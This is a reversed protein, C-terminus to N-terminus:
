PADHLAQDIDARVGAYQARVLHIWALEGPSRSARAAEVASDLTDHGEKVRGLALLASGLVRLLGARAESSCPVRLVQEFCRVAGHLDGRMLAIDAAEIAVDTGTGMAIGVDARALAPADNIGDGVMALVHGAAQLRVIEQVKGEPLVGAVVHTIGV